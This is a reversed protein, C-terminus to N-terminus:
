REPPTPPLTRSILTRVGTEPDRIYSGGQGHFEDVLISAPPETPKDPEVQEAAPEFDDADLLDVDSLLAEGDNVDLNLAETDDPTSPQSTSRAM